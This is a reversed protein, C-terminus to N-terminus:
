VLTLEDSVTAGLDIEPPALLGASGMKPAEVGFAACVASYLAQFGTMGGDYRRLDVM